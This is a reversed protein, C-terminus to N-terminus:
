QNAKGGGAHQTIMVGPVTELVEGSRLVPRNRLELAGVTGQTASEAIGILSDDRGQVTVSTNVSNVALSIRLPSPAAAAITVTTEQTEFGAHSVVLQYNGAALGAITFSGSTDSQAKKILIGSADQVRVEAGAIAGGSTDVVTGSVFVDAAWACGMTAFLMIAIIALRRFM